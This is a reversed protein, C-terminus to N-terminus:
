QHRDFRQKIFNNCEDIEISAIGDEILDKLTADLEYGESNRGSILAARMTTGTGLFPDLVVDGKQSFM